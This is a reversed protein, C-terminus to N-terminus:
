LAGGILSVGYGIGLGILALAILRISMPISELFEAVQHLEPVPEAHGIEGCCADHQGLDNGCYPCIFKKM